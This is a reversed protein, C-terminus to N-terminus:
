YEKYLSAVDLISDKKYFISVLGGRLPTNFFAFDYQGVTAIAAESNCLIGLFMGSQERISM